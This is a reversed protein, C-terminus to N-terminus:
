EKVYPLQTGSDVLHTAYRHRLTHTTVRKNIKAKLAANKVVKSHQVKQISVTRTGGKLYRICQSIIM